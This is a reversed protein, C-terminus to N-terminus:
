ARMGRLIWEFIPLLVFIILLLAVGVVLFISVEVSVDSNKVEEKKEKKEGM